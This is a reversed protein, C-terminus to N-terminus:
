ARVPITFQFCSGGSAVPSAWIRGDHAEIITRSIALGMGIGEAKTTYFPDFMKAAIAPDIGVGCDRVRIRIADGGVRRSSIVLDRPAPQSMMADMGNTALNLLVQQIQVPDVTVQPLTPDLDVYVSVRRRIADDHLLRVLDQILRNLDISGRSDIEKRFLARVRAVVDSARRSEQVIRQATSSARDLNPPSAQLWERCAYANTVVATLPQNLEHAISAALEGMGLRHSLNSLETQAQVLAQEARRREETDIHTGYWREIEGGAARQPVSRILFWRYNGDAARVRWEGELNDGATRSIEWAARFIERDDPHLISFFGENQLDEFGRGAYELLHNNCYDISGHLGASWIQQPIAETLTRLRRESEQIEANSRQLEATRELVRQELQDRADKIATENRKRASSVWSMTIACVIFAICYTQAVNNIYFSYFPPVFFYDIMATSLIVSIAGAVRGGFWASGMVAGLFLFLFPYAVLHQLLLTWLFAVLVFSGAISTSRLVKGVFRDFLVPTNEDAM